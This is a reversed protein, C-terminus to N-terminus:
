RRLARRRFLLFAVAIAALVVIGAATGLADGFGPGPSTSASPSAQLVLSAVIV